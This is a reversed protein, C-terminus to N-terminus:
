KPGPPIHRRLFDDLRGFTYRAYHDSGAWWHGSDHVIDLEFTKGLLKLKEAMMLTTKLPVIDDHVGHIILLPDELAEGLDLLSGQEFIEPHTDPRRTLHQDFGTFHHVDVAPAGAVGAAFLGPKRFLASLVLLGGYSNGWIGIRDPDVHDLTSLYDVASHLDDLDDRGWDGQFAERFDVGYGISGRVDVLVTIYDGSLAMQQQLFSTPRDADWQNRVTNSYTSGIIVPYRRDPELERPEIIRAHIRFDDIRSPFRVYRPELWDYQEFEELPSHTLRQESSEGDLELWYLEAPTTDSSTILAMRQGDPSLTPEHVGPIRTLRENNRGDASLRHVHREYPSHEASQVLIDTGSPDVEIWASGRMGAIDYDGSLRQPRGGDTAIAYLRYHDDHDGIFLIREGDGSWLARFVPYVRRPRHDHWITRLNGGDADALHIWRDEAVDAGQMIMLAKGSPSFAFELNLRRNPAELDLWEPQAGDTRVIGVKRVLDVDGPYPRRVESLLPEDHLYSPFPVRRVSQQDVLEFVLRTSDPSWQYRSVYADPRVYAGIMVTAIGPRALDTLQHERGEAIERLWLDGDRVMSLYRGDPSIALNRGGTGLEDIEGDPLSVQKLRGDHVFLIHDGDPHWTFASLGRQERQRARERLADLSLDDGTGLVSEPDPAFRTLRKLEGDPGTALWLDRFPMGHDNWLFAIRDSAPSWAPQSPATGDLKPLSVLRELDPASPTDGIAFPMWAMLCLALGLTHRIQKM